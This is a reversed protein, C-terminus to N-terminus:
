MIRLYSQQTFFNIDMTYYKPSSLFANKYLVSLTGDSGDSVVGCVEIYANEGYKYIGLKIPIDETYNECREQYDMFKQLEYYSISDCNKVTNNTGYLYNYDKNSNKSKKPIVSPIKEFYVCKLFLILVSIIIFTGFIIYVIENDMIM